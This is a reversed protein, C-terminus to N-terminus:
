EEDQNENEKGVDFMKELEDIEFHMHCSLCEFYLSGLNDSDWKRSKDLDYDHDGHLTAEEAAWKEVVQDVVELLGTGGCDPCIFSKGNITTKGDWDDIGYEALYRLTHREDRSLTRILAKM